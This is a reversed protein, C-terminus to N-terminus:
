YSPRLLIPLYAPASSDMFHSTIMHHYELWLDPLFSM